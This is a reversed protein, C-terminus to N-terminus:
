RVDFTFSIKFLRPNAIATPALWAAGFTQNATLVTSRNLANYIDLNVTTRTGSFRFVKGVRFDLQHDRDLYL